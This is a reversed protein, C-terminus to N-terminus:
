RVRVVVRSGEGGKSVVELVAGVAEARERMGVLGLHGQRALDLWDKPAEFGVGNDWIEMVLQDQEKALRIHVKSAQAHKTINVLGEQFIRFLALRKEEPLQEGDLDEDFYCAIEPHKEQFVDLHSRIAKGLGFKSLTPPRLEGAYVRLDNIQEQLTTQLEELEESIGEACPGMLLSRLNFIAATLAQVPGDHLDRAIQQREKERQEILRNKIENEAALRLTEEEARKLATIDMFVGVAGRPKGGPDLLPAANGFLHYRGGSDFVVDFDFDLQTEGTRAAIQMPLEEAPLIKGKRMTHHRLPFVEPPSSMSVNEGPCMKLFDYGYQNSIMVSCEADRSVWVFAPITNMLADMEDARTRERAESERLATEAARKETVDHFVMVVGLTVGSSDRIPAASDEIPILKGDRTVLATHNALGVIHGEELVRAVPNEAPQRTQENLIPFVQGIALGVAEGNSWGTLQEAVPNVFTVKGAPDTTIVADGISALTTRFWEKESALQRQAHKRETIDHGVVTAGMPKGHEDYKFLSNLVAYVERGDKVKVRYEVNPIPEKGALWGQVRAQFTQRGQEDLIDFPDMELLEERTYGSLQCMSDNVSTFRLTRFDIEYIAAPANRVLERYRRESEELARESRRRETVDRAVVVSGVVEGAQNRIPGFSYSGVWREGTDKRRLGYEVNAAVEGRLARPIAWAEVPALSGDPLYVDMFEQYNEFTKICEEKNKFRHFIAFADNFDIFRGATDSVFVADTMSKLAAELTTRTQIVAKESQKKANIDESQIFVAPRGNYQHPISRTEVTRRRGDLTLAEIEIPLKGDGQDARRMRERIKERYEPAIFEMAPRHCVEDIAAAGLMSLGVPNAYTYRGDQLVYIGLPSTEVLMRFRDESERLAVEIQTQSTTDWLALLAAHQQLGWDIRRAQLTFSRVTGDPFRREFGLTQFPRGNAIVEHIPGSFCNPDEASWVSEYGQGILDQGNQPCIFRYAPNAFMFKLDDGVVVALGGPDAEFIADLLAKQRHNEALVRELSADTEDPTTWFDGEYLFGDLQASAPQDTVPAGRQRSLVGDIRARIRALTAADASSLGGPGVCEAQIQKTLALVTDISKRHMM